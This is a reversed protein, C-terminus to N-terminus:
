QKKAARKQEASMPKLGLQHERSKLAIKKATVEPVVEEDEETVEADKEKEKKSGGFLGKLKGAVGGSESSDENESTLVVNAVRLLGNSDIKMSVKIVPDTGTFNALAEAVGLIEVQAIEPIARHTLM